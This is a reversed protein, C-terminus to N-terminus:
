KSFFITFNQNITKKFFLAKNKSFKMCNIKTMNKKGGVGLDERVNRGM